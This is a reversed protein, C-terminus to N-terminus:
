SMEILVANLFYYSYLQVSYVASSTVCSLLMFVECGHLPSHSACWVIFINTVNAADAELNWQILFDSGNREVILRGVLDEAAAVDIM